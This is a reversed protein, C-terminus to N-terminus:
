LDRDGFVTPSTKGNRRTDATQTHATRHSEVRYPPTTGGRACPQLTGAPCSETGATGGNLPVLRFATESRHNKTIVCPEVIGDDILALNAPAFKQGSLGAAERITKATEGDPFRTYTAKLKDIDKQLRKSERESLRLEKRADIQEIAEAIATSAKSVSVDWRRGGQDQRSGEDVNVAWLGSHGASGGASLWLEHHGNNEPNYAARRGLLLWQRTWEQFGSWAINDLEPPDFASGAGNKKTHHCLIISTGTEATVKTLDSLMVGVLFLNAASDGLPMCLYAPDLILVELAHKEIYTIITKATDAQGLKPLDFCWFANEYDALNMWPKSHAVRRATEQITAQGSEGSVLAVRVPRSTYFENLFKAQSALSLTLDILINTKLCKKPGALVCPQRNVLLGPILYELDFAGGDLERSTLTEFTQPNATATITGLVTSIAGTVEDLNGGENLKKIGHQLAHRLKQQREAQEAQDETACEMLARMSLNCDRRSYDRAIKQLEDDPKGNACRTRNFVRLIEAIETENAGFSRVAGAVKLLTEHRGGVPFVDPLIMKTKDLTFGDLNGGNNEAATKPQNFLSGDAVVAELLERAVIAAGGDPVSLLKSLRHPREPRDAGKRAPTGYLKTIRSANHVSIDVAVHDDSFRKSLSHLVSQILLHTGDDKAENSLEIRYLLHWGNGSDCFVPEPWSRERLWDQCEEMRVRALEKEADTASDDAAREPSTPDFDILLWNRRVIDADKTLTKTDILQPRSKLEDGIRNMVLYCGKATTSYTAAQKAAQNIDEHRFYFGFPAGGETGIVRVEGIDGPAVFLRLTRAIEVTNASTATM